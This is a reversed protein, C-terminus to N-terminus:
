YTRETSIWENFLGNCFHQEQTIFKFIVDQMKGQKM